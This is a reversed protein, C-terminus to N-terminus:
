YELIICLAQTGLRIYKLRVPENRINLRSMKEKLWKVCENRWIECNNLSKLLYTTVIWLGSYKLKPIYLEDQIEDWQCNLIFFLSTLTWYWINKCGAGLRTCYKHIQDCRKWKQWKRLIEGRCPAEWARM